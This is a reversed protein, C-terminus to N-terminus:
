DQGTHNESPLGPSAVDAPKGDPTKDSARFAAHLAQLADEVPTLAQPDVSPYPATPAVFSSPTPIVSPQGVIPRRREVAVGTTQARREVTWDRECDGCFYTPPQYTEGVSATLRSGCYPCPPCPSEDPTSLLLVRPRPRVATFIGFTEPFTLGEDSNDRGAM